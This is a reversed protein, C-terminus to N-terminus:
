HISLSSRAYNLNRFFIYIGAILVLSVSVNKQVVTNVIHFGHSATNRWEGYGILALWGWVLASYVGNM